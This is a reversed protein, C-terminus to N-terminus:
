GSQNIVVVRRNGAGTPNRPDAPECFARGVVRLREPAVNMEKILFEKVAGARAQSLQENYAFTGVADTHGEIEFLKQDGLGGNLARGLERLVDVAEPKLHASGFEFEVKFGIAPKEATDPVAAAPCGPLKPSAASKAPSGRQAGSRDGAGSGREGTSAPRYNSAREPRSPAGVTPLGQHGGQLARPIPRLGQEFTSQNLAGQGFAPPAAIILLLATFGAFRTRYEWHM